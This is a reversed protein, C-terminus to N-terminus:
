PAYVDEELLSDEEPFPSEKAFEVAKDIEENIIKEMNALGLGGTGKLKNLPDKKKWALFEEETRYGLDNDYNPGCHERWRYTALEMFVPGKGGIVHQRAERAMGYVAVADNGDGAFVRLGHASAIGTLERKPQREELPTYVSYLNNECVYIIPLKHLVSFNMCEHWVGEETAGEGMFVVTIYQKDELKAAWAVGTAVPVINTVIPTSGLFNVAQDILHMSGGRGQCCGTAKGYIEALMRKLDGGKALYHGHARHGSMVVDEPELAECVGAACAEQGICLHVPCRMEQESYLEAIREEVLRIRLVSYLLRRTAGPPPGGGRARLRHSSARHSHLGAVPGTSKM